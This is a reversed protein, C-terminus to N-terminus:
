PADPADSHLLTGTLFLQYKGKDLRNVSEGDATYIEKHGERNSIADARTADDVTDATVYLTFEEGDESRATFERKYNAM